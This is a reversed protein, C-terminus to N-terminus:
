NGRKIFSVPCLNEDLNVNKSLARPTATPVPLIQRKGLIAAELPPSSPAPLKRIAHITKKNKHLMGSMITSYTIPELDLCPVM